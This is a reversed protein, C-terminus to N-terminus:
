NDLMQPWNEGFVELLNECMKSFIVFHDNFFKLFGFGKALIPFKGLQYKLFNKFGEGADPPEDGPCM